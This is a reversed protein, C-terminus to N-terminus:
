ADTWQVTGVPNVTQMIKPDVALAEIESIRPWKNTMHWLTCCGINVAQAFDDSRNPDRIITYIDRGMRSDVKEETLALFDRILGPNDADEYDDKFFRLWGNKIQNCVLLLSRAKDVQFYDRPHQETQPKFTMVNGSAARVYAIPIIRQLPFGAQVIFTERLSGAGTYDHTMVNCKFQQIAGLCLRAERMHEHPTLSRHGWIVDIKGDPRIGLVAMSTFSVEEEGGGGWDVALVRYLYGDLHKKAEELTRDWPLVAARRLETETILRAGTDWSEGCVENVFVHYPTNGKGQQKALLTEWAEPKSYHMPMVIQPVHYGAFKWRREPFRHIWRGTRPFVPRSCKACICGPSKESIEERYPGIMKLLDHHISPVNWYGCGLCKIVWEAQSSDEFLKQITNDLSKPTGSFRELRWPSASMTERIIPIHDSDMDQVEDYNNQDASIGRVRDCDQFAFSFLMQSNNKFTRQLVSNITSSGCFLKVVPSTEIFPRVYNQSFRRTLEYQPTVYLISFWPICNAQVVGLAAQSTSKSVQRGCKLVLKRAMRTRFFPEFPFHNGLHYPHGKLNLLLPLLPKLSAMRSRRLLQKALMLRATLADEYGSLEIDKILEPNVTLGMQRFREINSHETSNM